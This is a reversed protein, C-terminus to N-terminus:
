KDWKSITKIFAIAQQKATAYFAQTMVSYPGSSINKDQKVVECLNDIFDIRKDGTLFNKASEMANLSNCYDPIAYGGKNPEGSFLFSMPMGIDEGITQISINKHGVYKAIVKNIEQDTM